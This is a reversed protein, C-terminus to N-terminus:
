LGLAKRQRTTAASTLRDLIVAVLVIGIGGVLGAGTDAMTMAQFVVLGLGEGAVMPTIVQMALAMAIAQNVGLMISPSAMPLKVKFLSQSATSGYADCVENVQAPVQKLGLMTMRVMPPLAYIVTAIIATVKNGGFLMLVPILYVFTPMTQMTDLIPTLIRELTRNYAAFIGVPLGVVVCVLVSALTAAITEMTPVWINGVGTLFMLFSVVAAFRWGGAAWAMIFLGGLAYFWPLGILFKELPDLLYLFTFARLGKSFAAFLKNSALWDVSDDVPDRMHFMLSDPYYGIDFIWKDVAFIALIILVSIFLFQRAKLGQALAAGFERNVAGAVGGLVLAVGHTLAQSAQDISRWLVDLGHEFWRAPALRYWTQPLLRFRLQTRDALAESDRPSGIALTLRDFIIAMFVICMGAEFAWGVKLKFLAKYVERGLGGTGIFAALVALGLAMMITQNIGLVISPMAQPIQVKTMIQFRTSGFSEAVEVSTKPVQRIGLNTLRVVPPMAYIIIAMAAGTNGIGFLFIAPLLYVFAPMTQMGDLLPRIASEVRDNQSCWVGLPIGLVVSIVVSVGMLSLTSMAPDWMDVAGWFMVGIVTLLALRLGGFRLGLLGLAVVVFPWPRVQLFYEVEGIWHTIVKAIARTTDRVNAKLWDEGINIWHIFDIQTAIAEPFGFQFGFVRYVVISVAVATITWVLATYNVGDIVFLRTLDFSARNSHTNQTM